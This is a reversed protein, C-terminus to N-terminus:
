AAAAKKETTKKKGSAVSWLVTLAGRHELQAAVETAQATLRDTLTEFSELTDAGSLDDSSAPDPDIELDCATRLRLGHELFARIEFLALTTLMDTAAEGLGYSRLLEVDVRFMARMERATYEVRHFPISGYGESSGLKDGEENDGQRHQVGDSKRGGSVAPAVDYAEIVGSVARAFRPQGVWEKQNFFTGHLLVFPDLALIAAAMAPFDLPRYNVLGLRDTIVDLMRRGDLLAERVYPSAIRHAELRSSTLFRDPDEGAHVRVYPLDKVADVPERRGSDWATAELRNAISQVSEVLLARRAPAGPKVGRYSPFEAAGLDPFGTPQFISGLAPRLPVVFNLRATM